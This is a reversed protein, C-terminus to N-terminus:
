ALAISVSTVAIDRILPLLIAFSSRQLIRIVDRCSVNCPMSDFDYPDFVFYTVVPCVVHCQSLTMHILSLSLLQTLTWYETNTTDNNKEDDNMMPWTVPMTSQTRWEREISPQEDIETFRVIISSAIRM